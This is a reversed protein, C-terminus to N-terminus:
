EDKKEESRSLKEALWIGADALNLGQVYDDQTMMLLPDGPKSFFLQINKAFSVLPSSPDLVHGGHEDLYDLWKEDRYWDTGDAAPQESDAWVENLRPSYLKPKGALLKGGSLRKTYAAAAETARVPSFLHPWFDARSGTHPTQCAWNKIKQLTDRHSFLLAYLAKGAEIRETVSPFHRIAIGILKPPAASDGDRYPFLVQNLSLICQALFPFSQLVQEQYFNQQVVRQHIYQQENVILGRTLRTADRTSLFEKWLPIMFRSVGLQPLLHTLDRHDAKMQEYLLLQAYADHFILWNSRELFAFFADIKDGSLLRPLWDGRLDTMSWGGNRSVLHALLAWDVEPHRRYFSLYAATRTLNNRNALATSRRIKHILDQATETATSM